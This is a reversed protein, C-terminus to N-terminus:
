EDATGGTEAEPEEQDISIGYKLCMAATQIAECAVLAFKEALRAPSTVEEELLSAVEFGRIKDWLIVIGRKADKLAEKTKEAEELIVAYGEDPSNFLPFKKNARDLERQVEQMVNEKLQEIAM